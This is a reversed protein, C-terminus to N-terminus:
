EKVAIYSGFVEIHYQGTERKNFVNINSNSYIYCEIPTFTGDNNVIHAEMRRFINPRYGSPLMAITHWTDQVTVCTVKAYLDVQGFNSRHIYSDPHIEYGSVPMAYAATFM